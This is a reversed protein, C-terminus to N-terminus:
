NPNQTPRKYIYIYPHIKKYMHVYVQICICVYMFHGNSCSLSNRSKIKNFITGKPMKTWSSVNLWRLMLFFFFFALWLHKNMNCQGCIIEEAGKQAHPWAILRHLLVGLAMSEPFTVVVSTKTPWCSIRGHSKMEWWGRQTKNCYNNGASLIHCSFLSM